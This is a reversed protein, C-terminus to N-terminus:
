IYRLYKTILLCYIAARSNGLHGLDLAGVHQVGGRAAQLVEGAGGAVHVVKAPHGSGGGGTVDSFKDLSEKIAKM